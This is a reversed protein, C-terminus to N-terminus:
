GAREALEEWRAYMEGLRATQDQEEQWMAQLRAADAAIEPELMQQKLAEIQEELATIREELRNYERREAMSLGTSTPRAPVSPKVATPAAPVPQALRRTLAEWQRTDAVYHAGGRGDLVLIEECVSDLLMRDHTSLVIGGPFERLNEELVELTAIDLDNTPEDLLLLDAPEIMFRALIARAREGGSLMELSMDLQGTSFLFRKAWAHLHISQDRYVVHDGAPSLVNRLSMSRDIQRRAQDFYAIRLGDLRRLKGADPELEGALLRLLTTKGSGNSGVLGLKTGAGVILDLKSFLSRGGLGKALGEGTILERSRRGGSQLALGATQKIQNRSRVDALEGMLEGAAKIRAGSKTSRAPAGQRLWEVERRVRSALAQQQHLQGALFEERRILFDSYKGSVSLSGDPYVPNIEAIRTVVRELLTRDHSVLVFAFPAELLAAELTHISELDLGNTPEDLLLLDPQEIWARALYLRKRWGGSLSAVSAELQTLGWQEQVERLRMEREHEDLPLAAVTKKLVEGVTTDEPVTDEQAVYIRRLGRRCSVVGADPEDVGALLRLLTSKGAGNPGILGLREGEAVGVTLGRFLTRAGHSRSVSQASLLFAMNPSFGPARVLRTFHLPFSVIRKNGL